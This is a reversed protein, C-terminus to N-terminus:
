CDRWIKKAIFRELLIPTSPVCWIGRISKDEEVLRKVEVLNPGEGTLPVPIMNIGFTECLKFHRDYGPVPCLVSVREQAGWPRAGNGEVFLFSLYQSMLSLSSNGGAWVLDETCGLIQSGLKRCSALGTIEGYNRLDLGDKDLNKVMLEGMANSLDLQASSPKGRTLDLSLNKSKLEEFKASYEM